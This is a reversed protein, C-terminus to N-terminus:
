FGFSLYCITTGTIVSYTAIVKNRCFLTLFITYFYDKYAFFESILLLNFINIYIEPVKYYICKETPTKLYDILCYFVSFKYVTTEQITRVTRYITKSHNYNSGSKFRKFFINYYQEKTRYQKCSEKFEYCSENKFFYKM